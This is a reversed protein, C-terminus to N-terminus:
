KYLKDVNDANCLLFLLSTSTQFFIARSDGKNQKGGFTVQNGIAKEVM